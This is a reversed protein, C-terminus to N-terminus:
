AATRVPGYATCVALARAVPARGLSTSAARRGGHEDGAPDQHHEGAHQEAEQDRRDAEDHEREAHDVQDDGALEDVPSRPLTITGPASACTSGSAWRPPPAGRRANGALVGVGALVSGALRPHLHGQGQRRRRRGQGEVTGAAQDVKGENELDKDDTLQGAKEKVQGKADDVNDPM